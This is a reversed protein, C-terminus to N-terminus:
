VFAFDPRWMAAATSWSAKAMAASTAAMWAQRASLVALLVHIGSVFGPM